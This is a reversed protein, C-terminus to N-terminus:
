HKNISLNFITINIQSKKPSSFNCSGNGYVSMILVRSFQFYFRSSQEQLDLCSYILYYFQYGAPLVIPESHLM